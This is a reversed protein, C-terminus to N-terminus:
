AASRNIEADVRDLHDLITRTLAVDYAEVRFRRADYPLRTPAARPTRTM